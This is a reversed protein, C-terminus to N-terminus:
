GQPHELFNWFHQWYNLMLFMFTKQPLVGSGRIKRV